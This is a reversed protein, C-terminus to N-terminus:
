PKEKITVSVSGYTSVCYPVCYMLLMKFYDIMSLNGSRIRDFYNISILITGVLACVKLSNIVIDRCLAVAIWRKM